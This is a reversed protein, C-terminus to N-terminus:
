RQQERIGRLIGALESQIDNLRALVSARHEIAAQLAEGTRDCTYYDRGHVTVSACTLQAHRVAQIAYTYERTLTAAGTGNLHIAPVPIETTTM